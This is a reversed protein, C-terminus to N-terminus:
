MFVDRHADIQEIENPGVRRGEIPRFVQISKGNSDTLDLQIKSIQDPISSAFISESFEQVRRSSEAPKWCDFGPIRQAWIGNPFLCFSPPEVSRFEGISNQHPESRRM